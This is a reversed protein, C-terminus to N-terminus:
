YEARSLYSQLNLRDVNDNIYFSHINMNNLTNDLTNVYICPQNSFYVKKGPAM